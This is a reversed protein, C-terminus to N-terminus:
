YVFIYFLSIIFFSLITIKINIAALLVVIFLLTFISGLMTLISYIFAHSGASTRIAIKDIIDNTSNKIYYLYPMSLYYNYIKNSLVYQVKASMFQDAWLSLFRIFINLFILTASIIIILFVFEQNNINFFEKVTIAYNNNDIFKSDTLILIIPALSAIGVMDFFGSIIKLIFLFILNRRIKFELVSFFKILSRFAQM